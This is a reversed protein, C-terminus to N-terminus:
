QHFTHFIFRIDYKCYPHIHIHKALEFKAIFKRLMYRVKLSCLLLNCHTCLCFNSSPWLLYFLPLCVRHYHHFISMLPLIKPFHIAYFSLYCFTMYRIKWTFGKSLLNLMTIVIKNRFDIYIKIISITFVCRISM